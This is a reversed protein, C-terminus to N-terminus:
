SMLSSFNTTSPLYQATPVAIFLFKEYIRNVDVQPIEFIDLAGTSGSLVYFLRGPLVPM